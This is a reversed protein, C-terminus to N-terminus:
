PFLYREPNNRCYTPYLNPEAYEVDPDSMYQAVADKVAMAKPLQVQELNPVLSFKRVVSAGVTKNAHLSASKGAGAKYKVLLQGQVYKGKGMETLVSQVTAKPRSVTVKSNSVTAKSTDSSINASNQSGCATLILAIFLYIFKKM